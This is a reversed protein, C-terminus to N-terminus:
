YRIFLSEDNNILKNSFKKNYKNYNIFTLITLSICKIYYITYQPNLFVIISLLIKNYFILMITYLNCWIVGDVSMEGM